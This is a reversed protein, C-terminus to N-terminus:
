ATFTSMDSVMQEAGGSMRTCVTDAGTGDVEEDARRGVQVVVSPLFLSALM